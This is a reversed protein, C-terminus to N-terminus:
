RRDRDGRGSDRDGRDRDGRGSFGREGRDRDRDGRGWWNDDWDGRNRNWYYDDRDRNPYVYSYGYYGYPHWYYDDWDRYVYHRRHRILTYGDYPYDNARQWAVSAGIGYLLADSTRGQALNYIAAGSLLAATNERGSQSAAAPKMSVFVMTVLVAAVFLTAVTRGYIKM